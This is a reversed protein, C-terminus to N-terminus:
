VIITDVLHSRPSIVSAVAKRFARNHGATDKDDAALRDVGGMNMHLILSHTYSCSSATDVLHHDIM